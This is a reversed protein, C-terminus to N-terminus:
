ETQQSAGLLQTPPTLYTSFKVAGSKPGKVPDQYEYLYSSQRDVEYEGQELGLDVSGAIPYCQVYTGPVCHSTEVNFWSNSEDPRINIQAM